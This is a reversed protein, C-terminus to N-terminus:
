QILTFAKSVSLYRDHLLLKISIHTSADPEGTIINTHINAADEEEAEEEEAAAAAL